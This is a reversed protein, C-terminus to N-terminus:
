IAPYDQLYVIIAAIVLRQYLFVPYYYLQMIDKQKLEDTLMGYRQTWINKRVQHRNNYILTMFGFPM